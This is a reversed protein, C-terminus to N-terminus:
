PHGFARPQPSFLPHLHWIAHKKSISNNPSSVHLLIMTM